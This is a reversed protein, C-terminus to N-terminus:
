KYVEAAAMKPNRTKPTQVMPSLHHGQPQVM